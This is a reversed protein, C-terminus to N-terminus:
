DNDQKQQELRELAKRIIENDPFKELFLKYQNIKEEIPDKREEEKASSEEKKKQPESPLFEKADQLYRKFNNPSLLTSFRLYMNMKESDKWENVKYEIVNVLDEKTYGDNLLDKIYQRNTETNRFDKDALENFWEIFENYDFENSNIIDTNNETYDRTNTTDNQYKGNTCNSVITTDNQYLRQGMENLLNYDIRYWKTKDFRKKNYNGTILLGQDELSKFKRKLTPESLWKFQENWDKISNYVWRYGDHINNSRELWYHIQQLIIAENIGLLKALSPLIVIPKEDTILKSM